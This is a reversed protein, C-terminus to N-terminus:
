LRKRWHVFGVRGLRGLGSLTTTPTPAYPRYGEAILSRMSAAGDADTYTVAETLGRDRMCGERLRVMQRQLGRGRYGDMVGVRYHFGVAVGDHEVPKWACYAAPVEGDWGIFWEAGAISPPVDVPFCIADMWLIRQGDEAFPAPRFDLAM